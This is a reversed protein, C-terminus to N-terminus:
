QFAQVGQELLCRRLFRDQAGHKQAIASEQVVLQRHIELLGRHIVHQHDGPQM